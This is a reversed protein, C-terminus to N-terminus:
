PSSCGSDMEMFFSKVVTATAAAMALGARVCAWNEMGEMGPTPLSM